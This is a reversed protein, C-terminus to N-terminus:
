RLPASRRSSRNRWFARNGGAGLVLSRPKIDRGRDLLLAEANGRRIRRVEWPDDPAEGRFGPAGIWAAMGGSTVVLDTVFSYSLDSLGRSIRRRGNRTNLVVIEALLYDGEGNGATRAYALYTRNTRFLYASDWLEGFEDDEATPDDLVHAKSSGRSCAYHRRRLDNENPDRVLTYSVVIRSTRFLLKGDRPGCRDRATSAGAPAALAAILALAVVVLGAPIYRDCM